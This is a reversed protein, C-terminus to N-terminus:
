SPVSAYAEDFLADIEERSLIGEGFPSSSRLRQGEDDDRTMAHILEEFNEPKLLTVWEETALRSSWSLDNELWRAIQKRPFRLLSRDAQIREAM